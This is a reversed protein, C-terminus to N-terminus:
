FRVKGLMYGGKKGGKGGGKRKGLGVSRLLSSGPINFEDGITSLVKSRTLVNKAKDFFSKGRNPVNVIPASVPKPSPLVAITPKRTTKKPPSPMIVVPPGGPPGGPGMGRRYLKVRRGGKKGGLLGRAGQNLGSTITHVIDGFINGGHARSVGQLRRRRSSM